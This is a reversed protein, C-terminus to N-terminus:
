LTIGYQLMHAHQFALFRAADDEGAGVDHKNDPTERNTYRPIKYGNVRSRWAATSPPPIDVRDGGAFWLPVALYVPSEHHIGVRAARPCCGTYAFVHAELSIQESCM